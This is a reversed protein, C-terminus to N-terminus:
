WLELRSNSLDRSPKSLSSRKSYVEDDDDEMSDDDEDDLAEM